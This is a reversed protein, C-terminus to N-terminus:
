VAGIGGVVACPALADGAVRVEPCPVGAGISGIGLQECEVRKVALEGDDGFGLGPYEDADAEGEHEGAAAEGAHAAGGAVIFLIDQTEEFSNPCGSGILFEGTIHGCLGTAPPNHRQSYPGRGPRELSCDM